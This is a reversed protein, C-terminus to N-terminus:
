KEKLKNISANMDDSLCVFSGSIINDVRLDKLYKVTEENIGGDIGIYINKDQLEKIKDIVELIFKQGGKGPYVSMILVYDIRNIYPYIIDLSEDPNVAIGVKIYNDKIFKITEEINSTSDLHFTIMWINNLTILDKLYNLPEKVMLHIDLPKTTNKLDNLVEEITFNKEEVYLGDMLDVHILDADSNDINRITEEKSVKSKLYSVAIM